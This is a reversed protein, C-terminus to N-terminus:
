AMACVNHLEVAASPPHEGRAGHSAFSIPVLFAGRTSAARRRAPLWMTKTGSRHRTVASGDVQGGDATWMPTRARWTPRAASAGAPRSRAGRDPSRPHASGRRRAWALQRPGPRRRVGHVLSACLEADDVDLASREDHRLDFKGFYRKSPQPRVPPYTGIPGRKPTSHCSEITTTHWFSGRVYGKM